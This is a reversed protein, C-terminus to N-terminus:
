LYKEKIEESLGKERFYQAYLKDVYYIHNILWDYLFLTFYFLDNLKDVKKNKIVDIFKRHAMRHNEFDPYEYENMIREEEKFHFDAYDILKKQIMIYEYQWNEPNEFIKLLENFISFLNEHHQNMLPIEVDFIENYVFEKALKM